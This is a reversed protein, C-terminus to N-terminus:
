IPRIGLRVNANNYTCVRIDVAHVRYLLTFVSGVERVRRSENRKWVVALPNLEFPFFIGRVVGDHM